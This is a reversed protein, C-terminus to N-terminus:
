RRDLKLISIQEDYPLNELMKHHKHCLTVLNDLDYILDERDVRKRLHHVELKRYEGFGQLLCLRCCGADRILVKERISRWKRASLVGEEETKINMKKQFNKYDRKKPKHADCYTEGIPISKKCKTCRTKLAM